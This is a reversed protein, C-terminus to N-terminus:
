SRIIKELQEKLPDELLLWSAFEKGDKTLKINESAKEAYGWFIMKEVDKWFSSSTIKGEYDVHFDYLYLGNKALNYVIDFLNEPYITKGEKELYDVIKVLASLPTAAKISV